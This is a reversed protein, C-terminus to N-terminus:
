VVSKALGLGVVLIIGTGRRMDPLPLDGEEEEEEEEEEVVEEGNKAGGLLPLM